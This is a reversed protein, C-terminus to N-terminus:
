GARRRQRQARTSVAQQADLTARAAIDLVETDSLAFPNVIGDIESQADEFAEILHALTVQTDGAASAILCAEKNLNVLTRLTGSSALLLRLAGPHGRPNVDPAYPVIDAIKAVVSRFSRLHGAGALTYTPLSAFNAFRQQLEQNSGLWRRIASTGSLILAIGIKLRELENYINKINQTALRIQNATKQESLHQYEDLILGWSGLEVLLSVVRSAHSTDGAVLADGGARLISEALTKPAANEPTLVYLIKEGGVLPEPYQTEMAQRFRQLTRTKGTGPDGTVVLCYPQQTRRATQVARGLKALAKKHEATEVFLGSLQDHAAELPTPLMPEHASM